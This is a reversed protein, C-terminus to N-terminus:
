KGNAEELPYKGRMNILIRNCEKMIRPIDDLHELTNDFLIFEISNDKWPYPFVNLDHVIDVGKGKKMDVNIHNQLIQIGCGMNLKTM